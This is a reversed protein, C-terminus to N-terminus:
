SPWSMPHITVQLGVAERRHMSGGTVRASLFCLAPSDSKAALGSRVWSAPCPHSVTKACTRSPLPKAQNHTNKTTVFELNFCVHKAQHLDASSNQEKGVTILITNGMFKPGSRKAGSQAQSNKHM